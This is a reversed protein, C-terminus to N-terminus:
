IETILMIANKMLRIVFSIFAEFYSVSGKEDKGLAFIYGSDNKYYLTGDGSVSITSICYEQMNEDPLFLQTKVASTSNASDEFVTIGGEKSNCTTYIYVNGTEKEYATSVLVSAQPYGNMECSYIKELSVADLVLFEGKGASQCGVYLRGNYIVPTATVAGLAKYAKLSGLKGSSDMSFKYVYGAKSSTYYYKTEESYTVSSRIDGKVSLKSVCKGTNKDLSIIESNGNSNKEGDDSGFVVYKDTVCCGAWYFGGTKKYTWVAEKSEGETLTSQDKTSICVYNADQTEGNWFGTYIFGDDYVGPCIAQGGLFDTYVWLSKMTEFDFAEIIGNDLFVFIKGDAYLPPVTAYLSSGQMKVSDTEEGTRANLKYLKVGSILLITDEAVVPPTPAAKYGTGFKKAFLLDACYAPTEAETVGFYAMNGASVSFASLFVTLFAILISVIKKM